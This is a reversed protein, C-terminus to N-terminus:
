YATISTIALLEQPIGEGDKYTVTGEHSQGWSGNTVSFSLTSGNISATIKSGDSKSAYKTDVTSSGSSSGKPINIDPISCQTDETAGGDAYSTTSFHIKIGNPCSSLPAKLNISNGQIGLPNSSSYGTADGYLMIGNSPIGDYLSDGVAIPADRAISNANGFIWLQYRDDVVIGINNNQPDITLHGKPLSSYTTSFINNAIFKGTPDYFSIGAKQSTSSYTLAVFNGLGDSALDLLYSDSNLVITRILKFNDSALPTTVYIKTGAVNKTGYMFNSNKAIAITDSTTDSSDVFNKKIISPSNDWIFFRMIVKNTPSIYYYCNDGKIPNSNVFSGKNDTLGGFSSNTGNSGDSTQWFLTGNSGLSAGIYSGLFNTVGMPDSGSIGSNSLYQNLTGLSAYNRYSLRSNELVFLGSNEYPISRVQQTGGANIQSVYTSGDICKSKLLNGQNTSNPPSAVAYNSASVAVSNPYLPSGGNDNTTVDFNNLLGSYTLTSIQYNEVKYRNYTTTNSGDPTLKYVSNNFTGAYVNGDLDVAVSSVSSDATFKWVQNGNADLKYVSNNNTGAYVNSSSDVAVSQVTDDATFKWIQNGNADLKYVAKSTTGAYVNGGLDVAVSRVYADATFKWVQNGNADLKYVSNNFTGAYVNSSSDVAVSYVTNDATFKWVQKGNADLKYVSNDGTGVYVNGSSDVAVSYVSSSINFNWVQKGSADLKYVSNNATSVYVNGSSDVAVSSVHNDATFKWVQKGSADLKYVSSNYTGVYVNGSYDVTVSDVHNDATFKWPISSYNEGIYLNDGKKIMKSVSWDKEIDILKEHSANTWDSNRSSKYTLAYIHQQDSNDMESDYATFKDPLNAMSSASGTGDLSIANSTILKGYNDYDIALATVQKNTSLPSFQTLSKVNVTSSDESVSFLKNYGSTQLLYFDETSDTGVPSITIKGNSKFIDSDGSLTFINSKSSLRFVNVNSSGYSIFDGATFTSNTGMNDLAFLYNPSSSPQYSHDIPYSNGTNSNDIVDIYGNNYAVLTVKYARIKYNSQIVDSVSTNSNQGDYVMQINSYNLANWYATKGVYNVYGQSSAPNFTLDGIYGSTANKTAYVSGDNKGIRNINNGDIVYVLGKDDMQINQLTGSQDSEWLKSAVFFRWIVKGNKAEGLLKKGNLALGIVKKGKIALGM